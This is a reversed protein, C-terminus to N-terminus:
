IEGFKRLCTKIFFSENHGKSAKTMPESSLTISLRTVIIDWINMSIIGGDDPVM